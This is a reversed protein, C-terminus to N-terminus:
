LWGRFLFWFRELLKEWRSRTPWERPDIERCRGLDAEFQTELEHALERGIMLLGVELNHVFSRRDLNYSGITSWVGDIAACKAHMMAGQWEFLRVGSRMLRGYVHRSASYVLQLDSRSPVIVRISVGRRVARAFARRLAADPIFYANMIVIQKQACHIAQLYARRMRPRAIAGLNAMVQVLVGARTPAASLQEEGGRPIPVSSGGEAEWTSAFVRSLERVAPGEIQACVDHWGGGGEEAPCYEDGINIGGVFAVRGDVILIKKHDRRNWGFGRRWPAVPHFEISEVGAQALDAMYQAPLGISGLADYLVRVAVGARAREALAVKFREGIRDARLIYMELCVSQEARAIADLM